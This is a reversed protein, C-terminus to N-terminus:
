PMCQAVLTMVCAKSNPKAIETTAPARATKGLSERDLNGM